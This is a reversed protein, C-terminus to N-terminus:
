APTWSSCSAQPTTNMCRCGWRGGGGPAWAEPAPSVLKAKSGPRPASPSGHSAQCDSFVEAFLFRSRIRCFPPSPLAWCPNLGLPSPYGRPEDQLQEGNRIAPAQSHFSECLGIQRSICLTCSDRSSKRGTLLKSSLGATKHQSVCARHPM